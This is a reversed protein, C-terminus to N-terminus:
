STRTLEARAPRPGGGRGPLLAPSRAPGPRAGGVNRHCSFVATCFLLWMLNTPRLIASETLNYLLFGALVILPWAAGPETSRRLRAGAKLVFPVLVCCFLALGVLGVDLLLDLIGNHSDNPNWPGLAWVRSSPGDWGRWFGGYGYGLLPRLSIMQAVAAWVLTRGTLTADRGVLELLASRNGLAALTLGTAVVVAVVTVPIAVLPSRRLLRLAPALILLFVLIVSGTRSAAWLLSLISIAIGLQRLVRRPRTRPRLMVLAITSWVAARALTNKQSFIGRLAGEHPAPMFGQSPFCAAFVLSLVLVACLGVATCAILDDVNLRIAAYLGFLTAWLLALSRVFTDTPSSSWTISLFLYGLLLWIPASRVAVPLAHHWNLALFFLGLLYLGALAVQNIAAAPGFFDNLQGASLALAAAVIALDVTHRSVRM